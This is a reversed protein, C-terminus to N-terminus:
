VPQWDRGDWRWQGDPSLQGTYDDSTVAVWDTGDWRWQGDPSVEGVHDSAAYLEEAVGATGSVAQWDTGDWVWQGDDSIQGAYAAPSQATDAFHNGWGDRQGGNEIDYRLQALADWPNYYQYNIGVQQEQHLLAEWTAHDTEGTNDMGVQTQLMRVANETASNYVGDPWEQLIRLGYLRVQLTWVWEGTNGLELNPEEGTLAAM